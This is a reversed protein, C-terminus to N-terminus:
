ILAVSNYFFKSTAGETFNVLTLESEKGLTFGYSGLFLSRVEKTTSFFLVPSNKAALTTLVAKLNVEFKEL